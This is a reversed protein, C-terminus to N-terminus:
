HNGQGIHHIGTLGSQTSITGSVMVSFGYWQAEHSLEMIVPSATAEAEFGFPVEYENLISVHAYNEGAVKCM